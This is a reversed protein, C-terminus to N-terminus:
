DRDGLSDFWKKKYLEYREPHEEFVKRLEENDKLIEKMKKDFEDETRPETFRYAM